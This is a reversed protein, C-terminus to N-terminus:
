SAIRQAFIKSRSCAPANGRVMPCISGNRSLAMWHGRWGNSGCSPLESIESRPSLRIRSQGKFFIEAFQDLKQQREELTDGTLDKGKDDVLLDFVILTAPTELSLKRIRSEAPHIRQLLADFSLTRNETVIIEGDM